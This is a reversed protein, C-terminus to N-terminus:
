AIGNRINFDYEERSHAPQPVRIVKKAEIGKIMDRLSGLGVKAKKPKSRSKRVNWRNRCVKGCFKKRPDGTKVVEECNLCVINM